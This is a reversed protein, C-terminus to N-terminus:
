DRTTYGDPEVKIIQSVVLRLLAQISSHAIAIGLITWVGEMVKGEQITKTGPRILHIALMPIWFCFAYIANRKVSPDFSIVAAMGIFFILIVLGMWPVGSFGSPMFVTLM